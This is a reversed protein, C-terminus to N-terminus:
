SCRWEKMDQASRRFAVAWLRGTSPMRVAAHAQRRDARCRAQWCTSRRPVVAEFERHGVIVILADYRGAILTGIPHGGYQHEAGAADIWPAYVEIRVHFRKLERTIDM